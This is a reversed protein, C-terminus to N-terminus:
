MPFVGRGFTYSLTLLNPTNFSSLDISIINECNYFMRELNQIEKTTFNNLNVSILSTCNSFMYNMSVVRSVDCNSLDVSKLSTCGEFFSEMFTITSLDFNALNITTINKVNKFMSNCSGLPSDWILKITNTESTLEQKANINGTIVENDNIQISSPLAFFDENIISQNGNGQITLLIFNYSSLQRLDGKKSSYILSFMSIYIIIFLLILNAKITNTNRNLKIVSKIKNVNKVKSYYKIKIEKKQSFNTRPNAKSEINELAITSKIEHSM